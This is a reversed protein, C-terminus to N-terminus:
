SKNGKGSEIKAKVTQILLLISKNEAHELILGQTPAQKEMEAVIALKEAKSLPERSQAYVLGNLSEVVRQVGKESKDNQLWDLYQRAREERNMSAM